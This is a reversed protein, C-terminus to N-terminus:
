AFFICVCVCVCARVCACACVCVCVCVCVCQVSQYFHLVIHNLQFIRIRKEEEKKKMKQLEVFVGYGHTFILGEVAMGAVGDRPFDVLSLALSSIIIAKEGKLM